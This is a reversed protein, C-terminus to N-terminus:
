SYRNININDKPKPDVINLKNSKLNENDIDEKTLKEKSHNKTEEEFNEDKLVDKLYDSDNYNNLINLLYISLQASQKNLYYSVEEITMISDRTHLKLTNINFESYRLKYYTDLVIKLGQEIDEKNKYDSYFKIHPYHADIYKLFKRFEKFNFKLPFNKFFERADKIESNLSLENRKCQLTITKIISKFVIYMSFVTLPLLYYINTFYKYSIILLGTYFISSFISKAYNLEIIHEKSEFHKKISEPREKFYLM